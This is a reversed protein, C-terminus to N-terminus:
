CQGHNEYGEITVIYDNKVGRPHIGANFVHTTINMFQLLFQEIEDVELEHMLMAPDDDDHETMFVRLGNKSIAYGLAGDYPDTFDRWVSGDFFPLREVVYDQAFDVDHTMFMDIREGVPSGEAWTGDLLNSKHKMRESTSNMGEWVESDLDFQIEYQYLKM